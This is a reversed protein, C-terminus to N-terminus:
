VDAVLLRAGLDAEVLELLADNRKHWAFSELDEQLASIARREIRPGLRAWVSTCRRVDDDLYAEPRRWYAHFFGDVCDWPIPVAEMAAVIVAARAALPPRPSPRVLEPLYDRVLWFRDFWTEDWQFVVVRRAVRRMELFGQIPESWHHDTLVALAADFSNDAFPLAEAVASVCPAAEPPRQVRMVRSPEVAIVHRDLPEYSGTGAGINLVREADGLAEWIRAAIRPDTRRGVSYNRGIRDYLDPASM